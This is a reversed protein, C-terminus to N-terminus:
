SHVGTMVSDVPVCNCSDVISKGNNCVTEMYHRCQDYDCEKSTLLCVSKFISPINIMIEKGESNQQNIYALTLPSMVTYYLVSYKSIRLSIYGDIYPGAM